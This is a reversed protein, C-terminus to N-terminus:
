QRSEDNCPRVPQLIAKHARHLKVPKCTQSLLLVDRLISLFATLLAAALSSALLYFRVEHPDNARKISRPSRFFEKLTESM